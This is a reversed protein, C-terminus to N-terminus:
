ELGMGLLIDYDRTGSTNDVEFRGGEMVYDAWSYTM